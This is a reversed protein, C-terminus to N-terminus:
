GGGGGLQKEELVVNRTLIFWLSLNVNHKKSTKAECIRNCLNKGNRRL